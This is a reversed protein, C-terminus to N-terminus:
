KDSQNPLLPTIKTLVEPIDRIATNWVEELDVVDYGHILHDRMGAILSWPLIPNQERFAPSLRKVAEGLLTLQHLVASQTKIDILFQDKPLDNIFRQILNASRAIDLLIAEDRGM